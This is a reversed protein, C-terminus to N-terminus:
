DTVTVRKVGPADGAKPSVYGVAGPNARVFEIVEADTAKAAPPVNKGSFIQQQWYSELASPSKGLVEKSFRDRLPSGDGLNVPAAPQGNSWRDVKKLFIKALEGKSVSSLSNAANVVVVYGAATGQASARAPGLTLALVALALSAFSLTNRRM